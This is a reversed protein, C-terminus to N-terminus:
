WTPLFTIHKLAPINICSASGWISKCSHRHASKGYIGLPALNTVTHEQMRSNRRGILRQNPLSSLRHVETNCVTTFYGSRGACAVAIHKHTPIQIFVAGLTKVGFCKHEVLTRHGTCRSIVLLCIIRIRHIFVTNNASIWCVGIYITRINGSFQIQITFPTRDNLACIANFNFIIGTFASTCRGISSKIQVIGVGNCSICGGRDISFSCLEGVPGHHLIVSVIITIDLCVLLDIRAAFKCHQHLIGLCSTRACCWVQLTFILNFQKGVVLGLLGLREGKDFPIQIIISRVRYVM